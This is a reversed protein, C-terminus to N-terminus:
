GHETEKRPDIFVEQLKEVRINVVHNLMISRNTFGECVNDMMHDYYSILRIQEALEIIDDEAKVFNKVETVKLDGYKDKAEPSTAFWKYKQATKIELQEELWRRIQQADTHINRFFFALGPTEAVLTELNGHMELHQRADAAATRYYDFAENIRSRDARVTDFWFIAKLPESSRQVPQSVQGSAPKKQRLKERMEDISPM